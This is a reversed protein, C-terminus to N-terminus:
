DFNIEAENKSSVLTVSKTRDKYKYHVINQQEKSLEFMVSSQVSISLPNAVGNFSFYLFLEEKLNVEKGLYEFSCILNNSFVKFKESIYKQIFLGVNSTDNVDEIHITKDFHKELLHEFDHATLMMSVDISNKDSNYEMDTISVYYKHGFCSSFSILSIALILVKM